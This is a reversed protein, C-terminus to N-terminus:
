LTSGPTADQAVQGGPVHLPSKATVAQLRHGAPLHALADPEKRSLWHMGHQLDLSQKSSLLTCTVTSNVFKSAAANGSSSFCSRPAASAPSRADAHSTSFAETTSRLPAFAVIVNPGRPRTDAKTRPRDPSV